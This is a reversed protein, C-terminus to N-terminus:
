WIASQLINHRSVVGFGVNLKECCLSERSVFVLFLGFTQKPLTVLATLSHLSMMYSHYVTSSFIESENAKILLLLIKEATVDQSIIISIEM